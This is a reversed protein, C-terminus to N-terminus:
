IEVAFRLSIGMKWGNFKSTCHVAQNNFILMNGPKYKHATGSLGFFHDKEYINVFRYLDDPIPEDTKNLLPYDNPCGPLAIAGSLTYLPHHLMWCVPWAGEYIQDFVLLRVDDESDVWLPITINLTNNKNCEYDTHPLYPFDHKYYNGSNCVLKQGTAKTAYQTILDRIEQSPSAINMYDKSYSSFSEYEDICKQIVSQPVTHM